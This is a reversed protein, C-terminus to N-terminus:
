DDAFGTRCQPFSGEPAPVGSADQSRWLEKRSQLDVLVIPGPARDDAQFSTPVRDAQPGDRGGFPDPALEIVQGTFDVTVSLVTVNKWASSHVFQQTTRCRLSRWPGNSDIPADLIVDFSLGASAITSGDASEPRFVPAIYRSTWLRSGAIAALEPNAKLAAEAQAIEQDTVTPPAAGGDSPLAGVVVRPKDDAGAFALTMTTAFVILLATVAVLTKPHAIHLGM